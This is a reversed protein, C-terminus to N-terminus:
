QEGERQWEDVIFGNDGIHVYYLEDFGEGYEPLELKAHISAVAVDPVRAKGTRQANREMSEGISSRFYYGVVTYGAAKSITIYRERDAKTPNTNDVVFSQGSEICTSLLRSEKSRSHLEDLSIHALDSFREKYFTTKGCAPIGIFIVAKKM